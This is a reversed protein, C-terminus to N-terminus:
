DQVDREDAVAWLARGEIMSTGSPLATSMTKEIKAAEREVVSLVPKPYIGIWFAPIVLLMLALSERLGIDRLKAYESKAPKGLMGAQFMKLLYIAGLVVGTAAFVTLWVSNKWSGLLVLFEGVFGNLFPLGASSLMMIAFFGTLRGLPDALGGLEKMQRTHTRDYILGACLFLGSTSIGHNIIQMIGGSIAPVNWTFCGLIVFGMHSVSSYAILRKLDKQAFALLAGYIIAIVALTNIFGAAEAAAAPFFPICFRLIGYAGTKLLVGALMISGATPAQTHADPLWTHLPFLPVKIAFAVFFGWFLWKQTVPDLRPALAALAAVDFTGTQNYLVIIALLMFISGALTFLFFKVAAYIRQESGWIGIIFYLPILMMEWFVYFVFLDGALFTGVIGAELLFLCFYYAPESKRIVGVSYLVCNFNLITTLLILPTSLGDAVLSFNVSWSWASFWPISYDVRAGSLPLGLSWLAILGSAVLAVMRVLNPSTSRPALLLLVAVLLPVFVLIPLLYM